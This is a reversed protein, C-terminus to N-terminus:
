AAETRSRLFACLSCFAHQSAHSSAARFAKDNGVDDLFDRCFLTKELRFPQQAIKSPAFSHDKAKKGGSKILV